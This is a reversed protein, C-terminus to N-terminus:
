IEAKSVNLEYYNTNEAGNSLINLIYLCAGIDGAPHSFGDGDWRHCM